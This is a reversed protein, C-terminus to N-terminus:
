RWRESKLFNNIKWVRKKRIENPNEMWKPYKLQFSKLLDFHRKMDTALINSIINSRVTKFLSNSINSLFNLEPECLMRITTAAHHQELIKRFLCKILNIMKLIIFFYQNMM